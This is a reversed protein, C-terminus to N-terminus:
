DRDEKLIDDFRKGWEKQLYDLTKQHTLLVRTGLAHYLGRNTVSIAKDRENAVLWKVRVFYECRELDESDHCIDAVPVNLKLQELPIDGVRLDRAPVAEAVVRGMGVYGYKSLYAVVVDGKHLQRMHNAFKLGYGASIFGHIRCDDWSRWPEGVNVFHIRASFDFGILNKHMTDPPRFKAVDHGRQQNVLRKGLKWLLAAETWFAQDETLDRAIIRVTPEAGAARIRKIRKLMESKGQALLHAKSRSGTGKGYYFEELNRPDIYCYVYYNEAANM